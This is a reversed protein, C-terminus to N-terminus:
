CGASASATRSAVSAFFSKIVDAAPKASGDLRYLGFHQEVPGIYQDGVFDYLTWPAAPPLGAARTANEIASFYAAQEAEHAATPPAVGPVALDFTSTSYGTEGIFLPKGGVIQEASGFVSSADGPPGYFHLDYFDPQSSGLASVLRALPAASDWGGVSVTVPTGSDSRIAPLMVKAWTTAMISNPDIENQLEVVAIRPDRYFPRLIAAAWQRSDAVDAYDHWLDFLTLHVRLGHSAAMSVMQGLEDLYQPMPTPFGFAGPQVFVRIANAGLSAIRGMDADLMAPRWNGWVGGWADSKPYYNMERLSQLTAETGAPTIPATATCARHVPRARRRHVRHHHRSRHAGVHGRHATAATARPLPCLWSTLAALAAISLALGFRRLTSRSSM